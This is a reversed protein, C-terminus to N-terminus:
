LPFIRAISIQLLSAFRGPHVPLVIGNHELDNQFLYYKKSILLLKLFNAQKKTKPFFRCNHRNEAILVM